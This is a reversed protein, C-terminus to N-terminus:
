PYSGATGDENTCQISAVRFDPRHDKDNFSVQTQFNSYSGPQLNTQDVIATQTKTEAGGQINLTVQLSRIPQQTQNQVRGSLTWSGSGAGNDKIERATEAVQGRNVKRPENNQKQLQPRERQSRPAVAAASVPKGECLATLNVLQGSAVRIYCPYDPEIPRAFAQFVSTTLLALTASAAIAYQLTKM